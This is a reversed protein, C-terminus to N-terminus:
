KGKGKQKDALRKSYQSYDTTLIKDMFPIGTSKGKNINDMVSPAPGDEDEMYEEVEEADITIMGGTGPVVIQKAAGEKLGVKEFNGEFYKSKDVPQRSPKLSPTQTLLQKKNTPIRTERLPM